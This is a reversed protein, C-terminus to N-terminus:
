VAGGVSKVLQDLAGALTAAKNVADTISQVDDLASNASATADALAKTVQEYAATKSAFQKSLLAEKSATLRSLQQKLQSRTAPDQCSEQADLLRDILTTLLNLVQQEDSGPM